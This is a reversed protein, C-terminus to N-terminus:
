RAGTSSSSRWPTAPMPPMPPMPPLDAQSAPEAQSASDAHEAHQADGAQPTPLEIPLGNGDVWEEGFRHALRVSPDGLARAVAAQVDPRAGRSGLWEALEDLEGTRAFGGLLVGTVFALPVLALIGVQFITLAPSSGLGLALLM